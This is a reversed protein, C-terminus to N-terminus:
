QSEAQEAQEEAKKEALNKFAPADELEQRTIDVNAVHGDAGWEQMEVAEWDMAVSKAGFGLFGGVSVVIGSLRGEGDILLSEINGIKERTDTQEDRTYVGTGILDDTLTEREDQERIVDEDQAPAAGGTLALAILAVSLGATVSRVTGM